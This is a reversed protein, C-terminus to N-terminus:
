HTFSRKSREFIPIAKKYLRLSYLVYGYDFLFNGKDPLDREAKRYHELAKQEEYERYFDTAQKWAVTGRCQAYVQYQYFLLGCFLLVGTMGSLFVNKVRVELIPKKEANLRGLCAFFVLLLWTSRLPYSFLCFVTVVLVIAVYLRDSKNNHNWLSSGLFLLFLAM